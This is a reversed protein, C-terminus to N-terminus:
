RQPELDDRNQSGWASRQHGADGRGTRSAMVVQRIADVVLEPQDHHIYHGSKEAIIHQSNTSLKVLDQQLEDWSQRLQEFQAESLGPNTGGRSLVILPANGLDSPPKNQATSLEVSKVENLM